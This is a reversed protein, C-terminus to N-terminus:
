VSLTRACRCGINYHCLDPGLGNRYACRCNDPGGYWSGGRCVRGSGQAPPTLDGVAYRRYAGDEYWDACWEWVNGVMNYLGTPSVGAQYSDSGVTTQEGRSENNQCRDAQWEDGWPYQRADGGRAGYEWELETPLRMEAWQCYARADAWNLCVVPHEALAIPYEGDRWVPTGWHAKDPSRHGTEEVFAKYQRNTVPHLALYYASLQVKFPGDGEDKGADGAWFQGAPVLALHTGDKENRIMM